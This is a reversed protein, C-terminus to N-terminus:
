FIRYNQAILNEFPLGSFAARENSLILFTLFITFKHFTHRTVIYMNEFHAMVVAIASHVYLTLLDESFNFTHKIHLLINYVHVNTSFIHM